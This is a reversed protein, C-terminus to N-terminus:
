RDVPTNGDQNQERLPATFASTEIIQLLSKLRSNSTHYRIGSIRFTLSASVHASILFCFAIELLYFCMFFKASKAGKRSFVHSPEQMNAM